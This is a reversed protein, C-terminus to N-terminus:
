LQNFSSTHQFHRALLTYFAAREEFYVINVELGTSLDHSAFLATQKVDVFFVNKTSPADHPSRSGHGVFLFLFLFTLQASKARSESTLDSYYTAL